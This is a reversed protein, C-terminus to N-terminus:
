KGKNLSLLGRSASYNSGALRWVRQTISFVKGKLELLLTVISRAFNVKLIITGPAAQQLLCADKLPNWLMRGTAKEKKSRAIVPIPGFRRPFSSHLHPSTPSFVCARFRWSKSLCVIAMVTEFLEQRQHSTLLSIIIFPLSHEPLHLFM